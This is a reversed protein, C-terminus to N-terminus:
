SNDESRLQVRLTALALRWDREVTGLSVNLQEALAPMSLGAFFRLQVVEARRPHRNALENLAEELDVFPIRAKSEISVVLQNLGESQRDSKRVYDILLNRMAKIAYGYFARRNEFAPLSAGRFLRLWVEHVLVTPEVVANKRTLRGAQIRLESYVAQIVHLEASKDGHIAANILETLCSETTM